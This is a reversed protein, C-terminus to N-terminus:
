KTDTKKVFFIATSGHRQIKMSFLVDFNKFNSLYKKFQKESLKIKEKGLFMRIKDRFNDPMRIPFVAMGGEKLAEYTKKIIELSYPRYGGWNLMKIVDFKKDPIYKEFDECSFSTNKFDYLNKLENGAEIMAPSYDIGHISKSNKLLRWYGGTGCGVDLMDYDQYMSDIILYEVYDKKYDFDVEKLHSRKYGEAYEKTFPNHNHKM